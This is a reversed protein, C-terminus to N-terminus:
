SPCQVRGRFELLGYDMREQIEGIAALGPGTLASTDMYGDKIIFIGPFKAEWPKNAAPVYQRSNAEIAAVTPIHAALSPRDFQGPVRV